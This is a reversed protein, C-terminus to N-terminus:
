EKGGPRPEAKGAVPLGDRAALERPLLLIDPSPAICNPINVFQRVDWQGDFGWVKGDEGAPVPITDYRGLEGATAAVEIAAGSPPYIAHRKGAWFFQFQRMGAPVYFFVRNTAALAHRGGRDESLSFAVPLGPAARVVTGGRYELRYLGAAPVALKLAQFPADAAESEDRPIRGEAVSAGKRDRLVYTVNRRKAAQLEVALPEGALSYLWAHGGGSQAVATANTSRPGPFRVPVLDSSYAVAPLLEQPKFYALAEQFLQETEARTYPPYLDQPRVYEHGPLSPDPVASAPAMWPPIAPPTVSVGPKNARVAAKWAGIEKWKGGHEVWSPEAYTKALSPLTYAKVMDWSTMYADRMRFQQIIWKLARDKKEAQTAGSANRHHLHNYVLFQKIHDLRAQVDPRDKALRAAEDV